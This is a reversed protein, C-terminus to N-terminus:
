KEGRSRIATALCEEQVGNYIFKGKKDKSMLIRWTHVNGILPRDCNCYKCIAKKCEEREDAVAKQLADSIEQATEELRPMPHSNIAKKLIERAIKRSEEPTM